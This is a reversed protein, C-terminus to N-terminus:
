TRRQGHRAEHDARAPAPRREADDISRVRALKAGSRHPDFEADLWCTVIAAVVAADVVLAGMTIIQADNSARARVASYPDHVTAARVRHFKNAVIAMGLGTGCVLIGRECRGSQIAGAVDAAIDPYTRSPGGSFDVWELGRDLFVASITPALPMGWSDAGFAIVPM